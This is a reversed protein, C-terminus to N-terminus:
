APCSSLSVIQLLFWHSLALLSMRSLCPFSLFCAASKAHKNGVKVTNNETGYSIVLTPPPIAKTWPPFSPATTNTKIIENRAEIYQKM